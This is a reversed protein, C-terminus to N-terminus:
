RKDVHESFYKKLAKFTRSTMDIGFEGVGSSKDCAIVYMSKSAKHVDVMLLDGNEYVRDLPHDLESENIVDCNNSM